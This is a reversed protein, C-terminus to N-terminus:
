SNVKKILIIVTGDYAGMECESPVSVTFGVNVSENSRLIFNNKSVKLFDKIDGEAYIEVSVNKDYNNVLSIERTSSSSGPTIMGFTLATGNIDFGYKEGIIISSYIERKELIM